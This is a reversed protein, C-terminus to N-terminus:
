VYWAVGEYRYNPLSSIVNARENESSTYFHVGNSTNLFRHVPTSMGYQSILSVKYAEGEYAYNWEPHSIINNREETNTTYFHEGNTPNNFRYLATGQTLLDQYAVGEYNFGLDPRGILTDREASSDTYFHTAVLPNYFRFVDGRPAVALIGPDSISGNAVGDDDGAGGDILNIKVTDVLGNADTDLM